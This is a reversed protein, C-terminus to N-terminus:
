VQVVERQLTIAARAGLFTKLARGSREAFYPQHELLPQLPHRPPSVGGRLRSRQGKVGLTRNCLSAQSFRKFCSDDTKHQVRSLSKVKSIVM